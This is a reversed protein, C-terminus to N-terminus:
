PDLSGTNASSSCGARSVLTDVLQQRVALHPIFFRAQDCSVAPLLRGSVPWWSLRQSLHVPTTKTPM